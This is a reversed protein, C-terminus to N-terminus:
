GSGGRCYRKFNDLVLLMQKDRLADQLAQLLPRNNGSERIGLGATLTAPLQAPDELASLSIYVLGDEFYPAM